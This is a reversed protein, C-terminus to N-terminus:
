KYNKMTRNIIRSASSIKSMRKKTYVSLTCYSCWANCVRETQRNCVCVCVCVIVSCVVWRACVRMVWVLGSLVLLGCVQYGPQSETIKFNEENGFM